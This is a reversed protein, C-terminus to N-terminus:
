MCTYSIVNLKYAHLSYKVVIVRYANSHVPSCSHFWRINIAKVIFSAYERKLALVSHYSLTIM